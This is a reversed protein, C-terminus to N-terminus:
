DKKVPETAVPASVPSSVAAPLVASVVPPSPFRLSTGQVNAPPPADSYHVKGKEDIWKNLVAFTNSASLALLLALIIKIM